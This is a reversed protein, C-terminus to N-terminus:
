VDFCGKQGQSLKLEGLFTWPTHLFLQFAEGIHETNTRCFKTTSSGMTYDKVINPTEPCLAGNIITTSFPQSGKGFNIKLRDVLSTQKLTDQWYQGGFDNNGSAQEEQASVISLVLLILIVPIFLKKLM